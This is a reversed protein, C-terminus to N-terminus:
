HLRTISHTLELWVAFWKLVAKSPSPYPYLIWNGVELCHSSPSINREKTQIVLWLMNVSQIYWVYFPCFLFLFSGFCQSISICPWEYATDLNAAAAVAIAPDDCSCASFGLLGMAFVRLLVQLWLWLWLDQYKLLLLIHHAKEWGWSPSHSDIKYCRVNQVTNGVDFPTRSSCGLGEGLNPSFINTPTEMRCGNQAIYCCIKWWTLGTFEIRHPISLLRTQSFNVCLAHM